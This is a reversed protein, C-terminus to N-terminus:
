AHTAFVAFFVVTGGVFVVVFFIACIRDLVAAALMWDNKMENEKDAKYREKEKRQAKAELIDCIRKLLSQASENETRHSYPIADDNHNEVPGNRNNRRILPPEVSPYPPQKMCLGAALKKCFLNKM